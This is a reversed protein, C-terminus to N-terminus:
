QVSELLHAAQPDVEVHLGLSREIRGVWTPFYWPKIQPLLAATIEDATPDAAPRVDTWVIVDWGFSTRVARSAGGIEPIGWLADAYRDELGDRLYLPVDGWCPAVHHEKCPELKTFREAIEVLHPALMGRENAVATAIQDALAHAAPDDAPPKQEIPVRVYVSARYEPHKLHAIAKKKRVFDDWAAGFDDPKTFGREYASAVLQDVLAARTTHVVEPDRALGRQEAAQAMLEFDVCERLAVDRPLREREAQTAVCSGYVPRGNVQAVIVDDGSPTAQM